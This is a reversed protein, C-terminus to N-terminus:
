EVWEVWHTLMNIGLRNYIQSKCFCVVWIGGVNWGEAKNECM